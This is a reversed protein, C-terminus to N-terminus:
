RAVLMMLSLLVIVSINIGMFPFGSSRKRIPYRM